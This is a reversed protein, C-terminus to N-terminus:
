FPLDGDIPPMEAIPVAPAGKSAPTPNAPTESWLVKGNGLFDRRAKAEREEKSQQIWVSCDNGYQDSEDKLDMTMNLYVKGNSHNILKSKDIAKVDISISILKGM